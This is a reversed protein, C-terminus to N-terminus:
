RLSWAASTGNVLTMREQKAPGEDAPPSGVARCRFLGACTDAVLVLPVSAARKVCRLSYAVTSSTSALSTGTESLSALGLHGLDVQERAPEAGGHGFAAVAARVPRWRRNVGGLWQGCVLEIRTLHSMITESRIMVPKPRLEGRPVTGCCPVGQGAGRVRDDEAGPGVRHRHGSAPAAGAGARSGPGRRM